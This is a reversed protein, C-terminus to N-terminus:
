SLYIRNTQRMGADGELCRDFSAIPRPPGYPLPNLSYVAQFMLRAGREVPAGKHLGFTNELFASGASATQVALKDEDFERLVEEDRFRKIRNLRTSAASTRVYVHPGDEHGVDTLYVFLKIFSWDDVDRHFNESHQPGVETPYSWWVALYSIVPRCGFYYHLADLIRPDNALGLLYPAGIVDEDRHYAVHCAAHRASDHPRFPPHEDRYPDVVEKEAFYACLEACQVESLVRGLDALGERRLDGATAIADASPSAPEGRGRAIRASVRERTEPRMFRRQWHFRRWRRDRLQTLFKKLKM